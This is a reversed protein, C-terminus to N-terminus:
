LIIRLQSVRKINVGLYATIMALSYLPLVVMIVAVVLYHSKILKTKKLDLVISQNIMWSNVKNIMRRKAMIVKIMKTRMILSYMAMM